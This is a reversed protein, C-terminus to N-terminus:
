WAATASAAWTRRPSSASAASTASALRRPPRQVEAGIAQAADEIVVLSHARAITWSRTWTPWRGTSTCRCSPGPGRPSRRRSRRRTSTTPTRISTWSSRVAGLRAICGGTAFFTYPTTIVEDGPKIEVAMLGRDPRRHGFLRRHRIPVAFLRRDRAGLGEVEPSGIFYQADAVRDMAARIEGRIPAYRAKLDLLPVSQIDSM